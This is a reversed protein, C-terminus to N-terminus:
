AEKGALFRALIAWNALAKWGKEGGGDTLEAVTTLADALRLMDKRTHDDAGDRIRRKFLRRAEDRRAETPVDGGMSDALQRLDYGISSSIQKLYFHGQLEHVPSLYKWQMGAERVQGGHVELVCVADRGYDQKAAHEARRAADLMLDFPYNSPAIAIGASMHLKTADHFAQQIENACQLVYRTPLLALVDDGGAYILVARRYSRIIEPVKEDSFASLKQSFKRHEGAVGLSSLHAGMRDGDMHLVAVFQPEDPSGGAITDLDPFDKWDRTFVGADQAFRKIAAIAGLAENPRLQIDSVKRSLGGWDLDLAAMAGTLTCKRGTEDHMQPFHRLNKRASMARRVTDYAEGYKGPEVEVATWYVELWREVQADFRASWAASKAFAALYGRVPAAIENKWHQHLATEVSEGFRKPNDTVLTCAFLHPISNPYSGQANKVPFVLAAGGDEAAQVGALALESLLRSGVHLDQTRRSAAIFTQVPGIQFLFLYETM